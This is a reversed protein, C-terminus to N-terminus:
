AAVGIREAVAGSFLDRPMARGAILLLLERGRGELPAGAGSSWGLDDARLEAGEVHFGFRSKSGDGVSSGLVTRVAEDSAPYTIALPWAIDLGHIVDHSLAGALGGGPPSWPNEANDRVAAILDVRPLQSDREAVADSFEGFRGGARAMGEAYQAGSIRFPMTLHAVVHAVTWGACLTPGRWQKDTLGALVSALELRGATILEM